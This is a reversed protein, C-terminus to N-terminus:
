GCCNRKATKATKKKEVGWTWGCITTDGIENSSSSTSSEESFVFARILHKSSPSYFHPWLDFPFLSFSFTLCAWRCSTENGYSSCHRVKPLKFAGVTPPRILRYCPDKEHQSSPLLTSSSSPLYPFSHFCAICDWLVMRIHVRFDSLCTPFRPLCDKNPM